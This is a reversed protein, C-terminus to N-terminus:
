GRETKRERESKVKKPKRAELGRLTSQNAERKDVKSKNLFILHSM